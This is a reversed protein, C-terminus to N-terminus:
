SGFMYLDAIAGARAAQRINARFDADTADHIPLAGLIGGLREDAIATRAALANRAQIRADKEELEAEIKALAVDTQGNIQGLVKNLERSRNVGTVGRGYARSPLNAM